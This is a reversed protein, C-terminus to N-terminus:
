EVLFGSSFPLIIGRATCGSSATGAGSSIVSNKLVPGADSYRTHQKNIKGEFGLYDISISVLYPTWLLGDLV